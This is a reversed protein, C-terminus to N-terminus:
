YYKLFLSLDFSNKIISIFFKQKILFNFFFDTFFHIFYTINKYHKSRIISSHKIKKTDLDAVLNLSYVVLNMSYVIDLIM